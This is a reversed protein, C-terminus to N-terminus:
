ANGRPLRGATAKKRRKRSTPKGQRGRVQKRIEGTEKRGKRTKVSEVEQRKEKWLWPKKKRNEKKM